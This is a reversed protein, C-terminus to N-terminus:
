DPDAYEIELSDLFDGLEKIQAEIAPRDCGKAAAELREGLETLFDLGYGGGSGHLKHGVAWLADFREDKLFQPMAALHGRTNELYVPFLDKLDPDIKVTKKETMIAIM